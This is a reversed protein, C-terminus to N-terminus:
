GNAALRSLESAYAEKGEKRHQNYENALRWCQHILLLHGDVRIRIFQQDAEVLKWFMRGCEARSTTSYMVTVIGCVIIVIEYIKGHIPSPRSQFPKKKAPYPAAAARAAWEDLDEKTFCWHTSHGTGHKEAPLLGAKAAGLLVWYSCGLYEAAKLGSLKDSSQM